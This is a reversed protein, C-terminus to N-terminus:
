SGAAILACDCDTQHAAMSITKSNTKDIEDAIERALDDPVYALARMLVFCLCTVRERLTEIEEAASAALPGGNRKLKDLVDDAEYKM